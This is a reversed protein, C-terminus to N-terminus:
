PVDIVAQLVVAGLSDTIQVTADVPDFDLAVKKGKAVTAFVVKGKGYKAGKVNITGASTVGDVVVGYTGAALDRVRIVVEQNGKKGLKWSITGTADLDVGANMLNAKVKTSKFVEKPFKGLAAQVSTPFVASLIAVGNSRVEITKGKVPFGFLLVNGGPSTSFALQANGPNAVTLAGHQVGDVFFPYVGAPVHEIAVEFEDENGQTLKATGKASGQVGNNALSIELSDAKKKGLDKSGKGPKNPATTGTMTNSAPLFGTLYITAGSVVDIQAGLPQFDLLTKGAEIPDQFQLEVATADITTIQSVLVGDLLVDYTGPDLKEVEISFKTKAAKAEYKLMGQADFDPGVNVMFLGVKSTDVGPFGGITGDFTDTFFVTAAQRVEVVEGFLSFDFLPKAGDQPTKFEISGNGSGDVNISGKPTVLDTVYLDYTGSDMHDLEVDFLFTDTSKTRWRARANGNADVDTSSLFQSVVQGGGSKASVDPALLAACTLAFLAPSGFKPIRIM